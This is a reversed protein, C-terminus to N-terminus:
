DGDPDLRAMRIIEGFEKERIRDVAEELPESRVQMTYATSHLLTRDDQMVGVHGKWFILDGRRLPTEPGIERGLSLQMDSDRPCFFGGAQRALQILASCDLGAASRGGWVYPCGLFIETLSVWDTARGEVPKLHDRPVWGGDPLGAFGDTTATVRVRAGFSIVAGPPCKLEPAAYIQTALTTVQHTTEDDETLAAAPIYGVYGDLSSRGWAWVPDLSLVEFPEGLLLETDLPLAADPEARLPASPVGILKAVPDAYREAAVQGALESAALDPRAFTLRRDMSGARDM